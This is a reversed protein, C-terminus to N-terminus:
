KRRWCIKGVWPDLWCRKCRRCQCTSQKSSLWRPLSICILSQWSWTSPVLISWFHIGILPSHNWNRHFTIAVRSLLQCHPRLYLSLTWAVSTSVHSILGPSPDSPSRHGSSLSSLCSDLADTQCEFVLSKWSLGILLKFSFSKNSSSGVVLWPWTLTLSATILSSKNM